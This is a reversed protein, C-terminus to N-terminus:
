PVRIVVLIRRDANQKRLRSAAWLIAEGDINEKLIGERAMVGLNPAADSFSASFSKYVLHRLDNLRGPEAQKGGALWAERSQGGKWARTTFGLIENQIRLRDLWEGILSCWAATHVIKPGRMSGSNDILMSIALSTDTKMRFHSLLSSLSPDYIKKLAKSFSTLYRHLTLLEGKEALTGADVVEDFRRTYVYYSKPRPMELTTAGFSNEPRLETIEYVDSKNESVELVAEIDVSAPIDEEAVVEPLEARSPQKAATTHEPKTAAIRGIAALDNISAKIMGAMAALAAAVTEDNFSKFRFERWDTWNRTRLVDAIQDKGKQFGADLQDCTVYYLPLILNNAGLTSEKLLFSELESRCAPSRFFRPTLVPILFTVDSLSKNIREEWHQGWSIDNRDQFIAFPMGTHMRVEGELRKRFTTIRGDDHEDDSRVYSMFAIPQRETM